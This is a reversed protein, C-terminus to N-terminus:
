QLPVQCWSIAFGSLAVVEDDTDLDIVHTEVKEPVPLLYTDYRNAVIDPAIIVAAYRGSPSVCSQLLADGAAVSYVPTTTGDVDVREIMTGQAIGDDGILAFPRLSGQDGPLPLVTGQLGDTDVADVLPSETGDTLDIALMGDTREIVAVSSGRAIGDISVASGLDVASDGTADTLLLRGGFTLVLVSNTDPVFRWQAVRPDAGKITVPTPAATPDDLSATYLASNEGTTDTLVADSYVYGVLDGRDASQLLTIQGDGPLTMDAPNEGDLDTVILAPKDDDSRVSVVLHNATARFDEIHDNEFVPVAAEGTLDTRFITDGSDTRKLLYVDLAPTTFSETFTSEPESGIGTVGTITVTYDTADYLPLTFRVGISRGSTDVTFDTAPTITVQDATVDNLSQNTTIILRSGSAQTAAAPDVDVSTMRPGQLTSLLGGGLALVVLVALVTAFAGVFARRRRKSARTRRTSM